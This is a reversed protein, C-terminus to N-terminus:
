RHMRQKIYIFWHYSGTQFITIYYMVFCHFYRLYFHEFDFRIIWGFFQIQLTYNQMVPHTRPVELSVYHMLIPTETHGAYIEFIAGAKYFESLYPLLYRWITVQYKIYSPVPLNRYFGTGFFISRCDSSM